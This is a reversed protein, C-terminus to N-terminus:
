GNCSENVSASAGPSRTWATLDRSLYASLKEVDEAFATRMEALLHTEVPARSTTTTNLRLVRDIIGLREIKAARKVARSAWVLPAPTKRAFQAVWSSKLKKNQNFTPFLKRGDSELGLFNLATDYQIQASASFDDYVIVLRQSAPVTTLFRAIHESLKGVSRYHTLASSGKEPPRHWAMAFDTEKEVGNYIFQSHLSQVLDVPNRIMAIFRAQPNMALAREIAVGSHLYWTSAEGIARSQDDARAFLALYEEATRPEWVRPLDDCFYNPEKPETLFVSPHASLYRALSTTGCKPAGIIFFNPRIQAADSVRSM